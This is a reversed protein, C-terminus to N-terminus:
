CSPKDFSFEVGTGTITYHMVEHFSIRSGESSTGNLSFTVTGTSNKANVNEGFRQRFRGTFLPGTGDSPSAEFTGTTTGTIHYPPDLDENSATLHIVGREALRINYEGLSEQCPVVDTFVEFDRFHRTVTVTSSGAEAATPAVFGVGLLILATLFRRV